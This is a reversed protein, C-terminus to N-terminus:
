RTGETNVREVLRRLLDTQQQVLTTFCMLFDHEGNGNLMRHSLARFDDRSWHVSAKRGHAIFYCHTALEPRQLSLIPKAAQM